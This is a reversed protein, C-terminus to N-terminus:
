ENKFGYGNTLGGAIIVNPTFPVLYIPASVYDYDYFLYKDYEDRVTLLQAGWAVESYGDALLAAKESESVPAFLGKIALNSNETAACGFKTWDDHQGRWGPFLVPDDQMDAPCQTTLRFGHVAKGDVPKTYIYNSIVNGNAFQYYGDRDLGDMMDKTLDKIRRIMKPLLGSRILTYRRDGEGAFEFGREEIIAETLNACSAIFADTNAKGAPFSRERVLKLYQKATSVDGLESCVEAYSLYIESMRMYPGNVGSKRQAQWWPTEQRNEDWKNLSLGGADAKSGMAFSILKEQGAGTSGTVTVSVDRRMDNPDFIGYYYAPNIRGQGYDKCPYNKTGKGDGSSPRGFSYPRADNGGGIQMPYEYISETAYIADSMHMQQFFYQYPNGYQRKGEAARPDVTLFEAAGSDSLLAEYYTKAIQYFDKWDDRRGYTANNNENGMKTITIPNGDIDVPKVDNRRTQYGAAELCMRGILGQVYTRSFYNKTGTFGPIQGSRYMLPEVRRLDAICVEYISDRSAIAGAPEGFTDSYPVDGFYKILERYATARMAIAEGYIQSVGSPETQAMIEEFNAANEMNTIVVNAKGIVNFLRNYAGNQDNKDYLTLGYDKTYTGNQYFTEPWHRGPQNAFAEPHREIDSGAVDLAYFWGDGFVQNQACDRWTEYAGDLAARATTSNSFVFDADVESPSTVDLFDSCATTAAMAVVCLSYLIKKM